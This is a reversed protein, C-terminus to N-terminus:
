CQPILSKRRSTVPSKKGSTFKGTTRREKEKLACLKYFYMAFEELSIHGDGDTDIMQLLSDRYQLKEEPTMFADRSHYENMIWETLNAVEASTIKGNEDVDFEKFKIRAM